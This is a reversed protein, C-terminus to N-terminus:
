ANHQKLATKRRRLLKRMEEAFIVLAVSIIVMGWEPLGMNITHFYKQFFPIELIM